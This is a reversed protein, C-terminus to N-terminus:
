IFFTDAHLPLWGVVFLILILLCKHRAERKATPAALMAEAKMTGKGALLLPAARLVWTHLPPTAWM